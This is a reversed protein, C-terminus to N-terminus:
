RHIRHLDARGWGGPAPSKYRERDDHQVSMQDDIWSGSTAGSPAGRVEHRPRKPALTPRDVQRAGIPGTMPLLKRCGGRPGTRPMDNRYAAVPGHM